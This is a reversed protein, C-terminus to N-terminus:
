KREFPPPRPWDLFDKDSFVWIKKVMKSWFQTKKVMKVLLQTKKGNIKFNLFFFCNKIGGRVTLVQAIWTCFTIGINVWNCINKDLFPGLLQHMNDFYSSWVALPAKKLQDAKLIVAGSGQSVWVSPVKKIYYSM